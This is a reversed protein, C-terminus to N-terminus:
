KHHFLLSFNFLFSFNFSFLQCYWYRSECVTKLAFRRIFFYFEFIETIEFRDVDSKNNLYFVAPVNSSLRLLEAIIASGRAVLHLLTQGCANNEATFSSM